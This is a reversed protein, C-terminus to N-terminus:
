QDKSKSRPIYFSSPLRTRTNESWPTAKVFSPDVQVSFSVATSIYRLYLRPVTLASAFNRSSISLFSSSDSHIQRM